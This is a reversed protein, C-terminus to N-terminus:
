SVAGWQVWVEAVSPHLVARHEGEHVQPLLCCLTGFAFGLALTAECRPPPEWSQVKSVTVTRNTPPSTEITIRVKPYGGAKRGGDKARPRQTGEFVGIKGSYRGSCIRVLQGIKIQDTESM